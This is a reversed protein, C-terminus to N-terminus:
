YKRLIAEYLSVLAGIGTSIIIGKYGGPVHDEIMARSAFSPLDFVQFGCGFVVYAILGKAVNFTLPDYELVGAGAARTGRAGKVKLTVNFFYAATMPLLVSALFWLLFVSWFDARLLAFLDPVRVPIEGTGLARSAPLTTLFKGPLLGARLGAVELALGLLEVSGGVSVKQRLADVTGVLGSRAYFHRIQAQARQRTRDIHGAIVAPSPPLPM